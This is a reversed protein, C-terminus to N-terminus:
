NRSHQFFLLPLDQRVIFVKGKCSFGPKKQVTMCTYDPTLALCGIDIYYSLRTIERKYISQICPPALKNYDDSVMLEM